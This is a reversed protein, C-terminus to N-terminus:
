KLKNETVSYPINYQKLMKFSIASQEKSYAFIYLLYRSHEANISTYGIHQKKLELEINDKIHNKITCTIVWLREKKTIDVIYKALYVGLINTLFTVIIIVFFTQESILKVIIAYFTYSVANIIAATVRSGNITLISKLTSIVVNIFQLVTFLVIGDNTFGAFIQQFM